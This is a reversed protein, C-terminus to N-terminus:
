GRYAGALGYLLVLVLLILVFAAQGLTKLRTM